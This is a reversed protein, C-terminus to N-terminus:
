NDNRWTWATTSSKCLIIKHM